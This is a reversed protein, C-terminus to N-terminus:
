VAVEPRRRAADDDGEGYYALFTEDLSAETVELDVVHRQALLKVVADLAAQAASCHLTAGEVAVDHVGEVARFAAVDADAEDSLRATVHHLSRARLDALREVAVLRGARIIGVRDAIQQVESLVHSSLLVTGGADSHERVLRHFELQVLPDLGSTPEDLVLVDPRGMLAQTLAVKQRNGRSLTRIPRGLDLDLRAAVEDGHRRGDGGRLRAIFDLLQAGTLRDYLAPDGPVYGTRRHVATSDRWADLGLVTARGATPRLLGMLLRITTTKGAGNPGLYGFVEGRVVTLDVDSLAEHDGYRKTLGETRIVDASSV